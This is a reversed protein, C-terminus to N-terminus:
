RGEASRGTGPLANKRRRPVREATEQPLLASRQRIYTEQGDDEPRGPAEAERPATEPHLSLPMETDTEGAAEEESVAGSYM